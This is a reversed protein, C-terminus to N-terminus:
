RACGRMGCKNSRPFKWSCGGDPARCSAPCWTYPVWAPLVKQFMGWLAPFKHSLLCLDSSRYTRVSRVVKCPCFHMFFRACQLSSQLAGTNKTRLPHKETKQEHPFAFRDSRDLAASPGRQRKAVNKQRLCCVGKDSRSMERLPLSTLNLFGEGDARRAAVEGSPLPLPSQLAKLEIRPEGEPLAASRLSASLAEKADCLDKRRGCKGGPIRNM